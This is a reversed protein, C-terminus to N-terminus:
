NSVKSTSPQAADEENLLVLASGMATRGIVSKLSKPGTSTEGDASKKGSKKEIKFKRSVYKLFRFSTFVPNLHTVPM